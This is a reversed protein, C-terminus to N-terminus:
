SKKLRIKDSEKYESRNGKKDILLLGFAATTDNFAVGPLFSYNTNNSNYEFSIVLDASRTNEPVSIASLTRKFTDTFVATNGNYWKYVIAVTDIDGEEDTFSGKLEIINGQYVTEPTISKIKVQPVTTFKDKNCATAVLFFVSLIILPYKM